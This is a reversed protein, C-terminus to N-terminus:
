NKNISKKMEILATIVSRNVDVESKKISKLEEFEKSKEKQYKSDLNIM